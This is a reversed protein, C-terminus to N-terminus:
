LLEPRYTHSKSNILLSENPIRLENASAVLRWGMSSAQFQILIRSAPHVYWVTDLSSSMYGTTTMGLVRFVVM